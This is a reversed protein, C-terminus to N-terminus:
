LASFFFFNKLSKQSLPFIPSLVITRSNMRTLLNKKKKKLLKVLASKFVAPFVGSSLSSNVLATLSPLLTDLREVLVSTPIPDLQYTFHLTGKNM